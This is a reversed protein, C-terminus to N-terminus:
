ATTTSSSGTGTAPSSTRPTWSSRRRGSPRVDTGNGRRRDRADRAASGHVLHPRRPERGTPPTRTSGARRTSPRATSTPSRWARRRRRGARSGQGAPRLDRHRRQVGLEARTGVLGAFVVYIGNDLARAAYYVDRRHESGVVYASPCLYALAGDDTPRGRTSPSAATTASASGSPGATWRRHTAGHTGPTFLEAGRRVPAAQRVAVTVEGPRPRVGAAVAHSEDAGVGYPPASSWSWRAPARGRGALPALRADDPTVDLRAPREALTRPDYGALFLEPLVVLRAGPRGRRPRDLAGGDAVNAEVDGAVSEAQVAAVRLVPPTM